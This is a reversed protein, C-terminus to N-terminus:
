AAAPRSRPGGCAPRSRSLGVDFRRLPPVEGAAVAVAAAFGPGADLASVAAAAEPLPAGLGVGLCKAVAERRTWAAHFAASREGAPAERVAAAEEPGLARPALALVDRRPDIREVDVGIELGRAVAILALEGSHSLNFRLSEGTAALVPKGRPGLRLEVEEPEVELYCGLVTRLAWRAAVWRRRAQPRLM